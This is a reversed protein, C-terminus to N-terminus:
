INKVKDLYWGSAILSAKSLIVLWILHNALIEIHGYGLLRIILFILILGAEIYIVSDLNIVLIKILLFTLIANIPLLFTDVPINFVKLITLYISITLISALFAKKIEDMDNHKVLALYLYTLLLSILFGISIGIHDVKVIDPKLDTESFLSYNVPIIGSNYLISIAKVDEESEYNLPVAFITQEELPVLYPTVFGDTDVGLYEGRHNNIFRNFEAQRNPWTKFIAFYAYTNDATRLETIHVNRFDSRDWGTPEYNEAFLHAFQNEEDFFDVDERKIVINVEFKNLVLERVLNPDKTTNVVVKLLTTTEEEEIDFGEGLIIIRSREVGFRQLRRFIIDRVKEIERNDTTHLDLIYEASWYDNEKTILDFSTRESIRETLPLAILVATIGISTAIILLLYSLFHKIDFNFKVKM